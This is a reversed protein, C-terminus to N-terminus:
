SLSHLDTFFHFFRKKHRSEPSQLTIQVTKTQDEQQQQQHEQQQEQSENIADENRESLVVNNKVSIVVLLM